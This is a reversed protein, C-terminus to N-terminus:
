ANEHERSKKLEKLLSKYIPLRRIKGDYMILYPEGKKSLGVKADLVRVKFIETKKFGLWFTFSKSSIVLKSNLLSLFLIALVILAIGLIVSGENEEPAFFIGVGAALICISLLPILIYFFLPPRYTGMVDGLGKLIIERLDEAM